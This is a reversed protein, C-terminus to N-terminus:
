IRIPKILWCIFGVMAMLICTSLILSSFAVALEQSILFFSFFSILILDRTGIGSYSIPIMTVIGAVTVSIALYLFPINIGISKAFILMQFYYLFWAFITIGFVFLYHKVKLTKLDNIFDQLNVQWSKQYKAPILFNFIKLFLKKILETKIFLYFFILIGIILTIAYPIEKKFLNFFFFMGITAFILLFLIDFIRDLIVNLTSKGYSHGDNKLYFIKSLEGLRGPTIIGVMTSASYMIFSNTISYKIGQIRKLYNWRGAKIFVGVIALALGLILYYKNVTSFIGKLETLNLKSLIFVIIIIGILRSIKKAM